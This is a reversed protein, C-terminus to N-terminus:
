IATQNMIHAYEEAEAKTGYGHSSALISPKNGMRREVVWAGEHYKGVARAHDSTPYAYEVRFPKALINQLDTSGYNQTMSM